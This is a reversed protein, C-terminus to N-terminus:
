HKASIIVMTMGLGIILNISAQKGINFLNNATFFYESMFSLVIVVAVLCALAILQQKSDALFVKFSM